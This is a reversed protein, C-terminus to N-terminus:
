SCNTLVKDDRGEAPYSEQAEQADFQVAEPLLQPAQRHGVHAQDGRDAQPPLHHQRRGEAKEEHSKLLERYSQPGPFQRALGSHWVGEQVGKPPGNCEQEQPM